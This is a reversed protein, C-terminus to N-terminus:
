QGLHCVTRCRDLLADVISGVIILDGLQLLEALERELSDARQAAVVRDVHRRAEATLLEIGGDTPGAVRRMHIAARGVERDGAIARGQLDALQHLLMHLCQTYILEYIFPWTTHPHM